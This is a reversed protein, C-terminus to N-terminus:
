VGGRAVPDRREVQALLDRRVAVERAVERRGASPEDGEAAADRQPVVPEHDTRDPHAARATLLVVGERRGRGHEPDPRSTGQIASAWGMPRTRKMSAWRTFRSPKAVSSAANPM